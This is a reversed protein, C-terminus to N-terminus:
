VLCSLLLDRTISYVLARIVRKECIELTVRISNVLSWGGRILLIVLCNESLGGDGHYSPAIGNERM